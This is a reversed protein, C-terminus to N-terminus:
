ARNNALSEEAEEIRERILPDASLIPDNRLIDLLPSYKLCDRQRPEDDKAYTMWDLATGIVQKAVSIKQKPFREGDISELLDIWSTKLRPPNEDDRPHVFSLLGGVQNEVSGEVTTTLVIECNTLDAGNLSLRYAPLANNAEGIILLAGRLDAHDLTASRLKSLIVLGGAAKLPKAESSTPMLQYHHAPGARWAEDMSMQTPEPSLARTIAHTLAQALRPHRGVLDRRVALACDLDAQTLTRGQPAVAAQLVQAAVEAERRQSIRASKTRTTDISASIVESLAEPSRALGLERLRTGLVLPQREGPGKLAAALETWRGAKALDVHEALPPSLTPAIARLNDLSKQRAEDSRQLNEELARDVEGHGAEDLQAAKIEQAEAKIADTQQKFGSNIRDEIDSRQQKLSELDSPNGESPDLSGDLARDILHYQERLDQLAADLGKLDPRNTDACDRLRYGSDKALKAISQATGRSIDALSQKLARLSPMVDTGRVNPLQEALHIIPDLSAGLSAILEYRERKGAPSLAYDAKSYIQRKLADGTNRATEPLAQALHRLISLRFKALDSAVSPSGQQGADRLPREASEANATMAKDIEVAIASIANLRSALEADSSSNLFGTAENSLIGLPDLEREYVLRVANELMLGMTQLAAKETPGPKPKSHLRPHIQQSLTQELMERFQASKQPNTETWTEADQVLSAIHTRMAALDFATEFGATELRGKSIRARSLAEASDRGDLKDLLRVMKVLSQTGVGRQISGGPKLYRDVADLVGPKDGWANRVMERLVKATDVAAAGSKRMSTDISYRGDQETKFVIYGSSVRGSRGILDVAAQRLQSKATARDKDSLPLDGKISRNSVLDRRQHATLRFEGM